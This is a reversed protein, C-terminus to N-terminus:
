RLEERRAGSELRCNTFLRIFDDDGEFIGRSVGEASAHRVFTRRRRYIYSRTYDINSISVIEQLSPRRETELLYPSM